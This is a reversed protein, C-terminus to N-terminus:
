TEYSTTDAERIHRKAAPSAQLIQEHRVEQGHCVVVSSFVRLLLTKQVYLGRLWVNNLAANSFTQIAM